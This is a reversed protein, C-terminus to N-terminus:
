PTPADGDLLSRTKLERWFETPTPTHLMRLNEALEAPSRTGPIVSAVCRHGLPFQLAAAKLPVAHRACVAEIEAIKSLAADTAPAYDFWAGKVAGSEL